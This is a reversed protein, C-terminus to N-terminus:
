LPLSLLHLEAGLHLPVQLVSVLMAPSLMEAMYLMSLLCVHCDGHRSVHNCGGELTRSAEGVLLRSDIRRHLPDRRGQHPRDAQLNCSTPQDTAKVPPTGALFSM